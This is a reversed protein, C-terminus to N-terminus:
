REVETNKPACSVAHGEADILQVLAYNRRHPEGFELFTFGRICRERYEPRKVIPPQLSCDQRGSRKCAEWANYTPIAIAILVGLVAIVIMLEILTFGRSDMRSVYSAISPDSEPHYEEARLERM